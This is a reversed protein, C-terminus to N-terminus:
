AGRQAVPSVEIGRVAGGMYSRLVLAPCITECLGCGNCKASDVVPRGQGDRTIAHYPCASECVTCGGVSWAICRDQHVIALGIRVTKIDFPELAQTPCVQVCKGCFTCHGIHFKMVPTRANVMGDEVHAVGIVTTPCISRCRDCELCKAIFSTEDQGGPPRLLNQRKMVKGAAGLGLMAAIGGTAVIFARRSFGAPDKAKGVGESSQGRGMKQMEERIM